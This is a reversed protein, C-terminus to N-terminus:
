WVSGYGSGFGRPHSIIMSLKIRQGYRKEPSYIGSISDLLYYLWCPLINYHVLMTMMITNLWFLQSSIDM